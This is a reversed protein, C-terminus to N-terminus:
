VPAVDQARATMQRAADIFKPIFEEAELVCCAHGGNVEVTLVGPINDTLLRQREVPIVRDKLSVLVATPVDIEALWPQSDFFSMGDGLTGLRSVPTSLFQRFAWLSDPVSRDDLKAAQPQVHPPHILKMLKGIHKMNTQRQPDRSGFYPGTSCLIMATVRGPHRRWVLQAIGGGMSFGAVAFTDIGLVDALAAM